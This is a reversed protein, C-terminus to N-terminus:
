QGYPCNDGCRCRASESSDWQPADDFRLGDEGKGGAKECATKQGLSHHYEQYTRQEQNSTSPLGALDAKVIVTEEEVVNRRSM